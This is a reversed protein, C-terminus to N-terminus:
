NKIFKIWFSNEFNFVFKLIKRLFEVHDNQGNNNNLKWSLGNLM